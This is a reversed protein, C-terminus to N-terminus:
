PSESGILEGLVNPRLSAAPYDIVYLWRGDPQRRIVEATSGSAMLTGGNYLAYDARLLAVDGAEIAFNNQSVMEGGLTVLWQLHARIEAIGACRRNAEQIVAGPELLSLLGEVDGANRAQAFTKNMDHPVLVKYM